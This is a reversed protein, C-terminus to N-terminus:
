ILIYVRTRVLLLKSINCCVLVYRNLKESNDFMADKGKTSSDSM